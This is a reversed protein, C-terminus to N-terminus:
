KLRKLATGVAYPLEWALPQIFSYRGAQAVAVAIGPGFLMQQRCCLESCHRIRLGSFLTLVSGVDENIGTPNTEASGCHSSWSHQRLLKCRLKRHLQTDTHTYPTDHPFVTKNFSVRLYRLTSYVNCILSIALKCTQQKRPLKVQRAKANLSGMVGKSILFYIDTIVNRVMKEQM